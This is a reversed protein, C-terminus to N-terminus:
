REVHEKAHITSRRLSRASLRWVVVVPELLQGIYDRSALESGQRGYSRPRRDSPAATGFLRDWITLMGGFNRDIAEAENGHHWHHFEPTVLVSRLIPIRLATNSHLFFPYMALIATVWVAYVTSGLMMTPITLALLSLAQDIPNARATALWDLHESSHHVAHFAWLASLKHQARHAWYNTFDSLVFDILVQAWLPLGRLIHRASAPTAYRLPPTLIVTGLAFLPLILVRNAFVCTLDKVRERHFLPGHRVPALEELGFLLTAVMALAVLAIPYTYLAWGVLAGSVVWNAITRFSMRRTPRSAPAPVTLPKNM